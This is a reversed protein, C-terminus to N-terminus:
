NQYFFNRPYKQDLQSKHTGFFYMKKLWVLFYWKYFNYSFSVVIVRKNSEGQIKRVKAVKIGTNIGTDAAFVKWLSQYVKM